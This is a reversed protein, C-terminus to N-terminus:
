TRAPVAASPALSAAGSVILAAFWILTDRIAPRDDRRMLQKLEARAIPPTYWRASALGAAVAKESEQGVLSYDRARIATSM